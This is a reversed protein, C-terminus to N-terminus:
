ANEESRESAAEFFRVIWRTLAHYGLTSLTVGRGSDKM